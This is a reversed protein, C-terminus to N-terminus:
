EDNFAHEIFEYVVPFSVKIQVDDQDEISVKLYKMKM